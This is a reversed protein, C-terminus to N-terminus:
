QAFQGAMASGTGGLAKVLLARQSESLDLKKTPVKANMAKAATMENKVAGTAAKAAGVAIGAGPTMELVKGAARAAPNQMLTSVLTNSTNVPAANPHKAIYAAVRSAVQYREVEDPSFFAKMKDTGIERLKKALREPSVAADGVVNEGFAARRIDDAMQSKAQVFSEPSEKRLLDALRKVEDTKGRIVYQNVFSDSSARGESVAKLAPIADMESFREKAAKVAPAFVGGSEDVSEISTRISTRLQSLAANTAPDNSVNANIVKMLKDAEEVTFLKTQKEGELGFKRFQNRVGSPVKDGFSDLVNVYDQALGQMPIELDKGASERAEGYLKSVNSRRAVDYGRLTESIQNGAQYPAAAGAAPRGFLGQLAVNQQQLRGAIEPSIGRLNMEQAFQTPDRTIQSQLPQMGLSEFERQRLLAAPDIQKGQKIASSVEDRIMKVTAPPLDSPM